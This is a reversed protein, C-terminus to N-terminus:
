GDGVVLLFLRIYDIEFFAIYFNIMLFNNISLLTLSYYFYIHVATTESAATSEVPFHHNEL